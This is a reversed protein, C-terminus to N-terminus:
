VRGAVAQGQTPFSDGIFGRWLSEHNASFVEVAWKGAKNDPKVVYYYEIDGHLSEPLNATGDIYINGGGDKWARVIAASFDDVEMRPLEWAYTLTQPLGAIVGHKGDPYGDSHRYLQIGDQNYKDDKIIIHARTSM